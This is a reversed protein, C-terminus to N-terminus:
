LIDRLNNKLFINKKLLTGILKDNIIGCCGFKHQFNQEVTVQSHQSWRNKSFFNIIDHPNFETEESFLINENM